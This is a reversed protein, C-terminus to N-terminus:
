MEFGYNIHHFKKFQVITLKGAGVNPNKSEWDMTAGAGYTKTSYIFNTSPDKKKWSTWKEWNKLDAIYPFVNYANSKIVISSGANFKSPMFLPPVLAGLILAVLIILLTKLSKRM